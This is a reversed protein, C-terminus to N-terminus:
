GDSTCQHEECSTSGSCNDHNAANVGWNSSLPEGFTARAASLTRRLVGGDSDAVDDRSKPLHHIFRGFHRECFSAYDRTFLIFHHWCEDIPEPPAFPGPQTGCLCLFRKMDDFLKHADDQSINLKDQL